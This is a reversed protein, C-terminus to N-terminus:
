QKSQMPAQGGQRAAAREKLRQRVDQRQQQQKQVPTQSAEVPMPSQSQLQNEYDRIVDVVYHGDGIPTSLYTQLASQVAKVANNYGPDKAFKKLNFDNAKASYYGIGLSNVTDEPNNDAIMKKFIEMSYDLNSIITKQVLNINKPEYSPYPAGLKTFIDRLQGISYGKNVYENVLTQNAGKQAQQSGFAQITGSPGTVTASPMAPGWTRRDNGVLVKSTQKQPSQPMVKPAAMSLDVFMLKVGLEQLLLQVANGFKNYWEVYKAHQRPNNANFTVELDAGENVTATRFQVAADGGYARYLFLGNVASLMLDGLQCWTKGGVNVTFAAEKTEKDTADVAEMKIMRKTPDPQEMTIKIADMNHNNKLDSFVGGGGLPHLEVRFGIGDNFEQINLSAYAQSCSVGSLVIGIIFLKKM